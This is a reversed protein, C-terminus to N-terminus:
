TGNRLYQSLAAGKLLDDDGYLFTLFGDLVDANGNGRKGVRCVLGLEQSARIPRPVTM